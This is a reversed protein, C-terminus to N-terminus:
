ASAARAEAPRAEAPKKWVYRFMITRLAATIPIALLGGLIGGILKTGAMVCIIITLPHLGVRNGLIRPSYGLGEAVQVFVFVGAVMLFHNADGYQVAALILALLCTIIAGIYPLICIVAAVAGLLIAYDIGCLLLGVGLLTGSCISVLIQGRFFVIICDNISSLVFVLEEKAKSERVPLYDSWNSQIGSKELLFYFVYVPVLALGVAYAMFVAFSGVHALLWDSLLPVIDKIAQEVKAGIEQDWAVKAKQGWQSDALWNSFRERFQDSYEPLNTVLKNAQVVLEPVVTGLMLVVIALGIFFVMLIARIRPVKMRQEFLDVLPDLLCAIIGAIALPLILSALKDLLFGLTWFVGGLAGLVVAVALTTVSFWIVQAQKESPPPFNM